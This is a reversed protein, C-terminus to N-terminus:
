IDIDNLIGQAQHHSRVICNRLRSRSAIKAGNWLITDEIAVGAEVRCGAGISYFGSLEVGPDIQADAAIRVPWDPEAIYVPRWNEDAISRHVSLYERRNGINFWKGGTAVIGGIKGGEGIWDRVFPVFSVSQGAPIRNFIAPTWISIGSGLRAPCRSSTGSV